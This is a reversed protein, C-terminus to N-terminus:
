SRTCFHPYNEILSYPLRFLFFSFRAAVLNWPTHVVWECLGLYSCWLCLLMYVLLRSCVLACSGLVCLCVRAYSHMISVQSQHPYHQPPLYTKWDSGPERM